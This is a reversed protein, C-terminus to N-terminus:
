TSTVSVDWCGINIPHPVNDPTAIVAYPGAPLGGNLTVTGENTVPDSNVFGGYVQASDPFIYVMMSTSFEAKCTELTGNVPGESFIGFYFQVGPLTRVSFTIPQGAVPHSPQMEMGVIYTAGYASQFTLLM